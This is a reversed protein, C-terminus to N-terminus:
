RAPATTLGRPAFHLDGHVVLERSAEIRVVARNVGIPRHLLASRHDSDFSTVGGTRPGCQGSIRGLLWGDGRDVTVPRKPRGALYPASRQGVEGLARVLPEVQDTSPRQKVSVFNVGETQSTSRMRFEVDDIPDEDRSLWAPKHHALAVLRRLVKGLDAVREVGCTARAKDHVLHSHESNWDAVEIQVIVPRVYLRMLSENQDYTTRARGKDRLEALRLDRLANMTREGRKVPTAQHKAWRIMQDFLEDAERRARATAPDLQDLAFTAREAAGLLETSVSPSSREVQGQAVVRFSPKAPTPAYLKVGRDSRLPARRTTGTSGKAPM